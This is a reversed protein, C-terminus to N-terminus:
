YIVGISQPRPFCYTKHARSLTGRLRAIGDFTQKRLTRILLYKIKFNTDFSFLFPTFRSLGLIKPKKPGYSFSKM